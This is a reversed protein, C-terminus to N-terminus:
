KTLPRNKISSAVYSGNERSHTDGIFEKSMVYSYIEEDVKCGKLNKNFLKSFEKFTM